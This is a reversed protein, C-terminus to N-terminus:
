APEVAELQYSHEERTSSVLLMNSLSQLDEEQADNGPSDEDADPDLTSAFKRKLSLRVHTPQSAAHDLKM